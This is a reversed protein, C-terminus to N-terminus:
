EDLKVPHFYRYTGEKSTTFISRIISTGGVLECYEIKIWSSYDPFRKAVRNKKDLIRKNSFYLYPGEIKYDYILNGESSCAWCLNDDTLWMYENENKTKKSPQFRNVEKGDKYLGYSQLSLYYGNSLIENWMQDCDRDIVQASASVQLVLLVVFIAIRKM